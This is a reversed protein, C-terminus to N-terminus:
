RCVAASRGIAGRLVTLRVAAHQIGHAVVAGAIGAPVVHPLHEVEGVEELRSPATAALLARFQGFPHGVVAIADQPSQATGALDSSCVDSSWDSVLRTHRGRSSLFVAAAAILISRFM